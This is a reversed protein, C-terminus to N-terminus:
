LSFPVGPVSASCRLSVSSVQLFSLPSPPSVCFSLFGSVASMLRLLVSFCFSFCFSIHHSLPSFLFFLVNTLWIFCFQSLLSSFCCFHSFSSLYIIINVFSAFFRILCSDLLFIFSSPPPPLNLLFTILCKLRSRHHEQALWHKQAKCLFEVIDGWCSKDLHVDLLALSHSTPPCSLIIQACCHNKRKVKERANNISFSHSQVSM